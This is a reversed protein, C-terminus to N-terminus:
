DNNIVGGDLFSSLKQIASCLQPDTPGTNLGRLLTLSMQKHPRRSSREETKSQQWQCAGRHFHTLHVPCPLHILLQGLFWCKTRAAPFSEPNDDEEPWLEPAQVWIPRAGSRGNPQNRVPTQHRTLLCPWPKAFPQSKKVYQNIM